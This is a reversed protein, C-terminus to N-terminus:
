KEKIILHLKEGSSHSQRVQRSVLRLCNKSGAQFAPVSFHILFRACWFPHDIRFLV